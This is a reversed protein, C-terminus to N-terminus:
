GEKQLYARSLVSETSSLYDQKYRHIFGLSDTMIMDNGDLTLTEDWSPEYNYHIVLGTSLDGSTIHAVTATTLDDSDDPDIICYVLKNDLDILYYEVCNSRIKSFAYDYDSPGALQDLYDNARELNTNFDNLVTVAGSLIQHATSWAAEEDQKSLSANSSSSSSQQSVTRYSIVIPVDIPYWKGVELRPVGDVTVEKTRNYWGSSTSYLDEIPETTINTFGARELDQKVIRYDTNTEIEPMQVEGEALHSYAIREHELKALEAGHKLEENKKASYNSWAAIGSFFLVCCVVLSLLTEKPHKRCFKLIKKECARWQKAREAEKVRAREARREANEHMQQYYARTREEAARQAEEEMRREHDKQARYEEFPTAFIGIVRNVNDASKSKAEDIIHETHESKSYNYNFNFNVNINVKTGCYECFIFNEDSPEVTLAKGCKPCTVTSM